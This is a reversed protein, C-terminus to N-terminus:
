EYRVVRVCICMYIHTTCCLYIWYFHLVCAQRLLVCMKSLVHHSPCSLNLTLCGLTTPDILACTYPTNVTVWSRVTRREENKNSKSTHYWKYMYACTDYTYLHYAVFLNLLSKRTRFYSLTLPQLYFSSNSNAEPQKGPLCLWKGAASWHAMVVVAMSFVLLDSGARRDVWCHQPCSLPCM